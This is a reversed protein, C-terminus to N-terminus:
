KPNKYCGRKKQQTMCCTQWLKSLPLPQDGAGTFELALGPASVSCSHSEKKNFSNTKGDRLRPKKCVLHYPRSEKFKQINKSAKIAVRHEASGPKPSSQELNVTFVSLQCSSPFKLMESLGVEAGLLSTTM